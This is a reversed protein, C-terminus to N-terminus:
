STVADQSEAASAIRRLWRRVAIQHAGSSIVLTRYVKGAVGPFESWTQARVLTRRPAAMEDLEFVLRYTAFPHRGKMALRDPPAAVELVFGFPVTSPDDPNRCTVRLLADWTTAQDALVSIAHEDIYPLREM